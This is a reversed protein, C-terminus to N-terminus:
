ETSTKVESKARFIKEIKEINNKPDIGVLYGVVKPKDGFSATEYVPIGKHLKDKVWRHGHGVFVGMIQKSYEHSLAMFEPETEERVMDKKRAWIRPHNTKVPHHFLLVSPESTGLEKEFWDIQDDDFLRDDPRGRMSNLVIFKMGGEHFSYYPDFGTYRKWMAEITDVESRSFAGDSDRQKDIKYEHNGMVLYVPKDSKDLVNMLKLVRNNVPDNHDLERNELFSSVCDGIIVLFDVKDYEGGNISSVLWDMKEMKSRDNSTHVDSVVIFWDALLRGNEFEAERILNGEPDWTRALGECRGNIWRSEAKNVGNAWWQKWTATDETYVWEWLKQGELNWYSEKGTKVGISYEAQYQLNGDPHYWRELGSLLFRGDDAIGGSYELRLKDNSWYEKFQEVKEITVPTILGGVDTPHSTAARKSASAHKSTVEPDSTAAHNSTVKPKSTAEPNSPGTFSERVEASEDSLIWAENFEYHLCPDTMSTVLHILGNPAQRADVYGLTSGQLGLRHDKAEHEQGGALKKMQWTKGDDDSLAVLSGRETFGPSQYGDTRQLDCTFFLRGSKLRLIAPRQNGGLAPFPSASHTWSKGQDTSISLPMYGDIVSHKGGYAAISGDKLPIFASHRGYTRGGTDFWSAGDDKSAFLLSTPGLGDCSLYIVGESDRFAMTIPQPSHPGVHENFVPYKVESWSAGNDDSIKWQFPFNSDLHRNGWFMWLRGNDNWGLSSADVVDAFDQFASPMDWQEAGFRLRTSGLAVDPEDEDKRAATFFTVLLDGNECVTLAPCHNHWQFYPDAGSASINEPDSNDPPIPLLNRKKFWPIAPDPGAATYVPEQRVGQMNFPLERQLPKSPPLEGQVVRFGISPDRTTGALCANFANIITYEDLSNYSLSTSSVLQRPAGEYDWSISLRSDNGERKLYQVTIPYYRGRVLEASGSRAEDMGWGDIITDGAIIVKLGTSADAYFNVQGTFPSRISGTWYATWGNATPWSVEESNLVPLKMQMLPLLLNYDDFLIGTLGPYSSINDGSPPVLSNPDAPNNFHSFGPAMSARNSPRSYFKVPHNMELSRDIPLGGRVVKSYGTETGVPDKQDEFPYPGYWDYCWELPGGQMNKLGMSGANLCAYEWEAETPLRYTKGEKESLWRCYEMAEYWSVGTVYPAYTEFGQYDPRFKRFQEMTIETEGIRFGSSISVQRVPVEDRDGADSGMEFNGPSIDVMRIDSSSLPTSDPIYGGFTMVVLLVAFVGLIVPGVGSRILTVIKETKSM